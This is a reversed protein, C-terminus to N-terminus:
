ICVLHRYDVPPVSLMRGIRRRSLETVPELQVM